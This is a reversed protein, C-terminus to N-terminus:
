RGGGGREMLKGNTGMTESHKERRGTNMNEGDAEAERSMALVGRENGGKQGGTQGENTTGPWPTAQAMGHAGKGHQRRDSTGNRGGRAEYM